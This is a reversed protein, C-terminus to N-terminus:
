NSSFLWPLLKWPLADSILSIFRRCGLSVLSWRQTTTLSKCLPQWLHLLLALQLLWLPLELLGVVM